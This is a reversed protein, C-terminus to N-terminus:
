HCQLVRVQHEATSSLEQVCVNHYVSFFINILMENNIDKVVIAKASPLLLPILNSYKRQIDRLKQFVVVFVSQM